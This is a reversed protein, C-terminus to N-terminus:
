GLYFNDNTFFNKRFVFGTFFFVCPDTNGSAAPNAVISKALNPLHAHPRQVNLSPNQKLSSGSTPARLKSQTSARLMPPPPGNLISKEQSFKEDNYRKLPIELQVKQSFEPQPVRSYDLSRRLNEESGRRATEMSHRLSFKPAGPATTASTTSTTTTTTSSASSNPSINVSNEEHLPSTTTPLSQVQVHHLTKRLSNGDSKSYATASESSSEMSGPPSIRLPPLTPLPHSLKEQLPTSPVINISPIPLKAETIDNSRQKEATSQPEQNTLKKRIKEPLMKKRSKKDSNKEGKKRDSEEDTSDYIIEDESEYGAADGTENKRNFMREGEADSDDDGFDAETKEPKKKELVKKYKESSNELEDEVDDHPSSVTLFLETGFLRLQFGDEVKKQFNFYLM